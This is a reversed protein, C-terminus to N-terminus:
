GYTTLDLVEGCACEASLSNNEVDEMYKVYWIKCEPNEHRAVWRLVEKQQERTLDDFVIYEKIPVWHYVRVIM